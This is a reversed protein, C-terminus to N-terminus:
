KNKKSHLINNQFEFFIVEIVYIVLRRWFFVYRLKGSKIVSPMVKNEFGEQLAYIKEHFFLFFALNDIQGATVTKVASYDLVSEGITVPLM